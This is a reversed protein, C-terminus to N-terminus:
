VLLSTRASVAGPLIGANTGPYFPSFGMNFASERRSQTVLDNAPAIASISRVDASVPALSIGLFTTVGEIPAAVAAMYAARGRLSDIVSLPGEAQTQESSTAVPAAGGSNDNAPLTPEFSTITDTLLRVNDESALIVQNIFQTAFAASFPSNAQALVGSNEQASEQLVEFLSLAAAGQSVAATAPANGASGLLSLADVQGAQATQQLSNLLLLETDAARTAALAAASPPTYAIPVSFIEALALM